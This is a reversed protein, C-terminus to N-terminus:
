CGISISLLKRSKKTWSDSYEHYYIKYGASVFVPIIKKLIDTIISIKRELPLGLIYKNKNFIRDFDNETFEIYTFRNYSTEIQQKLFNFVTEINNIIEKYLRRENEMKEKEKKLQYNENEIRQIEAPKINLTIIKVINKEEMKKERLSQYYICWTEECNPFCKETNVNKCAM